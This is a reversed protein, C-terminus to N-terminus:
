CLFPYSSFIFLLCCCLNDVSTRTLSCTVCGSNELLAYKLKVVKCPQLVFDTVKLSSWRNCTNTYPTNPFSDPIWFTDYHNCSVLITSFCKTPFNYSPSTSYIINLYIQSIKSTFHTLSAWLWIRHAKTNANSISRHHEALLLSRVKVWLEALVGAVRIHKEHNKETGRPSHQSLVM